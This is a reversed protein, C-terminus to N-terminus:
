WREWRPGIPRGATASTGVARTFPSPTLVARVGPLKEAESTDISLIKAHPYPSRLLKMHLMGPLSYNDPFLRGGTVKDYADPRPVSKGIVNLASM